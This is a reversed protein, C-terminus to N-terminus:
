LNPKTSDVFVKEMFVFPCPKWEFQSFFTNGTLTFGVQFYYVCLISAEICQVVWIVVMVLGWILKTRAVMPVRPGTRALAVGRLGRVPGMRAHRHNAWLLTFHVKSLLGWPFGTHAGYPCAWSWRMTLWVLKAWGVNPGMHASAPCVPCARALGTRAGAPAAIQTIHCKVRQAPDSTVLATMLNNEIDVCTDVVGDLVADDWSDM